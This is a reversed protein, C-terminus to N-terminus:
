KKGERVGTLGVFFSTVSKGEGWECVRTRRSLMDDVNEGERALDM